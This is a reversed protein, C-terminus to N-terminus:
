PGAGARHRIVYVVLLHAYRPHREVHVAEAWCAAALEERSAAVRYLDVGAPCFLVIRQGQARASTWIIAPARGSWSRVDAEHLGRRLRHQTAVCWFRAVAFRRVPPLLLVVVAAVGATGLAVATSTHTVLVVVGALALIEWRWRWAELIPNFRWGRLERTLQETVPRYGPARRTM